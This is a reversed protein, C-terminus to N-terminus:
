EPLLNSQYYIIKGWTLGIKGMLPQVMLRENDERGQEASSSLAARTPVQCVALSLGGFNELKSKKIYLSEKFWSWIVQSNLQNLFSM